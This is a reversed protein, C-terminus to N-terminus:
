RIWSLNVPVAPVAANGVASAVPVVSMDPVTPLTAKALVCAPKAETVHGVAPTTSKTLKPLVEDSQPKPRVGPGDAESAAIRRPPPQVYLPVSFVSKVAAVGDGRLLVECNLGHPTTVGM